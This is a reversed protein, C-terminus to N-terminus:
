CTVLSPAPLVRTHALALAHELCRWQLGVQGVVLALRDRRQSTVPGLALAPM